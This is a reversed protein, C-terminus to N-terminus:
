AAGGRQRLHRDALAVIAAGEHMTLDPRDAVAALYVRMAHARVDEAFTVGERRIARIEARLASMLEGQRAVREALAARSPRASPVQALAAGATM